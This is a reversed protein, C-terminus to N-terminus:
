KTDEAAGLGVLDHLAKSAAEPIGPWDELLADLADGTPHVCIKRVLVEQADAVQSPNHSRSRWEKYEIRTPKRLVVEWPVPEGKGSIRAVRKYKSEFEEIQEKTLM